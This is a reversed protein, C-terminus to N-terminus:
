AEETQAPPLQLGPEDTAVLEMGGPNLELRLSGPFVPSAQVVEYVGGAALEERAEKLSSALVTVAVAAPLALTYSHKSPRKKREERYEELAKEYDLMAQVYGKIREAAEPNSFELDKVTIWEGPTDRQSREHVQYIADEPAEEDEARKLEGLVYDRSTAGLDILWAVMHRRGHHEGPDLVQATIGGYPATFTPKRLTTPESM